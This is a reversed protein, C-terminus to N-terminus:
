VEPKPREPNVPSGTTYRKLVSLTAEAQAAGVEPGGAPAPM